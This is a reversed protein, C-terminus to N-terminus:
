PAPTPNPFYRVPKFNEEIETLWQRQVSKPCVVLSFSGPDDKALWIALIGLLTKGLGMEDGIIIGRNESRCAMDAQSAGKLQWKHPRCTMIDLKEM